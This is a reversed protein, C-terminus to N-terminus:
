HHTMLIGWCGDVIVRHHDFAALHEAQVHDCMAEMEAPHGHHWYHAM